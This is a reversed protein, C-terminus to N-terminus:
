LPACGCGAGVVWVWLGCGGVGVCVEPTLRSEGTDQNLVGYFTGLLWVPEDSSSLPYHVAGKQTPPPPPPTKTPPPPPTTKTSPPHFRLDGCLAGLGWGSGGRGVCAFRVQLMDHLRRLGLAQSMTHGCARWTAPDLAARTVKAFWEGAATAPLAASATADDNADDNADIADDANRATAAAAEEGKVVDPDATRQQQEQQNHQHDSEEVRHQQQQSSQQQEDCAPM